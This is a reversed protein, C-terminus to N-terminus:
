GYFNGGVGLGPVGCEGCSWAARRAGAGISFAAGGGGGGSLAERAAECSGAMAMVRGAVWRAGGAGRGWRGGTVVGGLM